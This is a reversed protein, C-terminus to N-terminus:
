VVKRLLGDEKRGLNYNLLRCYFGRGIVKM